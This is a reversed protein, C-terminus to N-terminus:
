AAAKRMRARDQETTAGFVGVLDSGQALAWTRCEEVVLCRGCIAVAREISLRGRSFFLSSPHERCLADAHWAPPRVAEAFISFGDGPVM